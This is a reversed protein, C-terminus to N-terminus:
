VVLPLPSSKSLFNFSSHNSAGASILPAALFIFFAVVYLRYGMLFPSSNKQALM